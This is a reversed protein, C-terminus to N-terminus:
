RPLIKKSSAFTNRFMTLFMKGGARRLMLQENSGLRPFMKQLPLNQVYQPGHFEFESLSTVLNVSFFPPLLPRPNATRAFSRILNESRWVLQNPCFFVKTLKNKDIRHKQKQKFVITKARWHKFLQQRVVFNSIVSYKVSVSNAFQNARLSYVHM